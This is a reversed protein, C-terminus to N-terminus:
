HYAKVGVSSHRGGDEDWVGGGWAEEGPREAEISSDKGENKVLNDVHAKEIIGADGDDRFFHSIRRRILVFDQCRLISLCVFRIRCFDIHRKHKVLQVPKGVCHM